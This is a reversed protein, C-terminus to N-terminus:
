RIPEMERAKLLRATMVAIRSWARHADSHPALAFQDRREEAVELAKDGHERILQAALEIIQHPTM